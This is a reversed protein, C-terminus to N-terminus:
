LGRSTPLPIAKLIYKVVGLRLKLMSDTEQDSQVWAGQVQSCSTWIGKNQSDEIDRERGQVKLTQPSVQLLCKGM